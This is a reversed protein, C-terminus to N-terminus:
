LRLIRSAFISPITHSISLEIIMIPFKLMGTEATSLVSSLSFKFLM